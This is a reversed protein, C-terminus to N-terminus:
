HDSDDRKCELALCELEELRWEIDKKIIEIHHLEHALSRIVKDSAQQIWVCYDNIYLKSYIYYVDHHDLMQKMALLARLLARKGLRFLVYVDLMIKQALGWHRYLPYALSRRICAVLVCVCVCVCVELSSLTSSLKCITWPSEVTSEGETVRHDYCFAFMLDVLGLFITKESSLLYEKNPLERMLRQDEETFTMPSVSRAEKQQRRLEDWWVTRYRMLHQVDEEQMFDAIYYDEDFKVDENRIRDARRTAPTSHEPDNIDNVENETEIYHTFFGQYQDNFGYHATSPATLSSASVDPEGTLLNDAVIDATPAIPSLTASSGNGNAHEGKRALLKTLLDLDAFHEGPTEKPLKATIEGAAVDYSATAREDEVVHGPLHLRLFYPKVYLKFENGSVYMDVEQARVHPARILVTVFEDDQELRFAPTIM